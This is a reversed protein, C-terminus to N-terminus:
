AYSVLIVRLLIIEIQESTGIVLSFCFRKALNSCAALGFNL